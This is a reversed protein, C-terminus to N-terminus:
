ADGMRTKINSWMRDFKLTIAREVDKDMNDKFKNEMTSRWGIAKVDHIFHGETIGLEKDFRSDSDLLYHKIWALEISEPIYNGSLTDGGRM